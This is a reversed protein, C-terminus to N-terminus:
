PRGAGVFDSRDASVVRVTLGSRPAEVMQGNGIYMAVHHIPSGFFMLDGPQVASRSVRATASYQMSSSHPLSTGAAAWAASTLGSCDYSGPGSGGWAYPKGVQALAFQVAGAANGSVAPTATPTEGGQAGGADGADQARRRAQRELREVEAALEEVREEEAEVKERTEDCTRQAQTNATAAQARTADLLEASAALQHQAAAYREFASTRAATTIDLFAIRQAYESLDRAPSTFTGIEHATTRQKYMEAVVHGRQDAVSAMDAEAEDHRASNDAVAQEAADLQARRTNCEEIQIELDRALTDLRETARALRQQPTDASAPQALLVMLAGLVM